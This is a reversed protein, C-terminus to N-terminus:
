RAELIERSVLAYESLAHSSPYCQALFEQELQPGMILDQLVLDGLTKLESSIKNRAWYGPYGPIRASLKEPPSEVGTDGLTRQLNLRDVATPSLNDWLLQFQRLMQSLSDFVLARGHRPPTRDQRSALFGVLQHGNCVVAFPVGRTLCYDLAQDVASRIGKSADTLTSLKMTGCTVGSPLEFYAGERKAEVILQTATTGASYDTYERDFRVEATVHEKPWALVGLLLEDILHLRTTAENRNASPQVSWWASLAELNAKATEFGSASM